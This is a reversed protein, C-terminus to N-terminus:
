GCAHHGEEGGGEEAVSVSRGKLGGHHMAGLDDSRGKLGGHHM